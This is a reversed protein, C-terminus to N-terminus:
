ISALNRFQQYSILFSFSVEISSTEMAPSSSLNGNPVPSKSGNSSSILTSSQSTRTCGNLYKSGNAFEDKGLYWVSHYADITKSRCGTPCKLKKLHINQPQQQQLTNTYRTDYYSICNINMHLAYSFIRTLLEDNVQQNEPGIILNLHKPIKNLHQKCQQLFDYENQEREAPTHCLDYSWLAFAIIRLRLWLCFEFLSVLWHLVQWLFKYISAVDM